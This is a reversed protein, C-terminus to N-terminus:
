GREVDEPGKGVYEAAFRDLAAPEVAGCLLRQQWATAAVAVPLAPREAVIVDGDNRLEFAELEAKQEAPLDSQHWVVVYGHEMSHVLLGDAPVRTGAYVGGRAPSPNHDGGAPPEVTYTPNPVHGTASRKSDAETDVECSGGTLAERLEADSRQDLVVYGGVAVLAATALGGAVLMRKLSGTSAAPSGPRKGSSPKGASTVVPRPPKKRVPPPPATPRKKKKAM